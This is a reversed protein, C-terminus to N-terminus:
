RCPCISYLFHPAQLVTIIFLGWIYRVLLLYQISLYVLHIGKMILALPSILFRSLFVVDKIRGTREYLLCGRLFVPPWALAFDCIQM